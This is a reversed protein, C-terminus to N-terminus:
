ASRRRLVFIGAGIALVSAAAALRLVDLIQATYRGTLPDYHFCLILLQDAWSGARGAGADAVATALDAPSPTLGYLWRSLRGDSTLVAVAAAHAYQGIRPDWAYHYGLASTVGLVSSQPGVVAAVQSLAAGSSRERLRALDRRAADPTEKPDIGFAVLAFDRGPQLKQGAIADAVGALTVGCLNPCDHLVPVLLIPKGNGIARLTTARGDAGTLALDLPVQAGPRGDIRAEHFPDFSQAQATATSLLALLFLLRAIM